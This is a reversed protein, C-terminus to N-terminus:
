LASWLSVAILYLYIEDRLFNLNPRHLPGNDDFGIVCFKRPNSHWNLPLDYRTSVSVRVAM